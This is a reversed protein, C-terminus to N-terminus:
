CIDNDAKQIGQARTILLMCVDDEHDQLVQKELSKLLTDDKLMGIRTKLDEETLTTSREDLLGDTYLLMSGGVDMFDRQERYIIEDEWNCIPLAPSYLGKLKNGNMLLPVANMGANAWSLRGTVPDLLAVFMSVYLQEDKVMASFAERARYLMQVATKVQAGRMANALLLTIMAAAMGHGSVDAIYFSIRGDRQRICGFMDGGLSSAPLYRSFMRVREDPHGQALFLDRQMRAALNAERLLRKNQIRLADQRRYQETVDRFVEVTGIAAGSKNFLPTANICYIKNQFRRHKQQPRSTALARKSVCNMCSGTASFIEHCRRGKQNGFCSEFSKNILVVHQTLDLVRLMDQMADLVGQLVADNEEHM